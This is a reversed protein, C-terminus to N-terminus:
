SLLKAEMLPVGISAPQQIFTIRRNYPTTVLKPDILYIPVELPLYNILGAAPYVNMSTGVIAFLDAQQVIEIAQEIAPVPEGFWVVFPRLQYGRPCTDGLHIYPAQSPLTVIYSSDGTSCVKNLEGHLHLVHNSGAQEHLNDINQTIIEVQFSDQLRALSLHGENPVTKLLEERRKAYFNLVLEPNAAWGEPSAVEEVRYSEWLGGADRFTRIGSEASIGAGTLVVLKKM